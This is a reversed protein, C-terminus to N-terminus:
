GCTRSSSRPAASAVHRRASHCPFPLTVGPAPPLQTIVERGPRPPHYSTNEWEGARGRERERERAIQGDRSRDKDREEERAANCSTADQQRTVRKRAHARAFLVINLQAHTRPFGNRARSMTTLPTVKRLQTNWHTVKLPVTGTPLVCVSREAKGCTYIDLIAQPKISFELSLNIQTVSQMM